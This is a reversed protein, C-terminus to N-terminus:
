TKIDLLAGLIKDATGVVTASAQVQTESSQLQLVSETLSVISAPSVQATGNALTSDSVDTTTTLSAIDQAAQQANAIGSKIGELGTSLVSEVVINVESISV